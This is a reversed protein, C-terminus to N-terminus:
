YPSTPPAACDNATRRSIAFQVIEYNPLISVKPIMAYLRHISNKDLCYFYQKVSFNIWFVNKIYNRLTLM